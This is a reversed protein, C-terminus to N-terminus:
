RFSEAITLAWTAAANAAATGSDRTERGSATPPLLAWTM